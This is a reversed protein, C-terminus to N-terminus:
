HEVDEAEAQTHHELEVARAWTRVKAMACLNLRATQMLVSATAAAEPDTAARKVLARAEKICEATSEGLDRTLQQLAADEVASLKGTM